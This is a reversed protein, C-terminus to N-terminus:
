TVCPLGPESFAQDPSLKPFALVLYARRHSNNNNNTIIIIIIENIKGNRPFPM